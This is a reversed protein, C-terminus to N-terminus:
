KLLSKGSATGALGCQMGCSLRPIDACGRYFSSLFVVFCPFIHYSVALRHAKHEFADPITQSAHGHVRTDEIRVSKRTGLIETQLIHPSKLFLSETSCDGSVDLFLRYAVAMQRSSKSSHKFRSQLMKLLFSNIQSLHDLWPRYHYKTQIKICSAQRFILSYILWGPWM